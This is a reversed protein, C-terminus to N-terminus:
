VLQKLKLVSAMFVFHIIYNIFYAISVGEFGFKSTFFQTLLYFTAAFILESFVVIKIYAKAIFFYGILWSCMKIIDGSLQWFFLDQMKLFDESFLAIIIQSSFIYILASITITSPILYLYGKIFETKIATKDSIESFKPLFYISLVSTLFMLYVTSIRWMADWYGAYDIGFNNILSNRILIHALPIALAGALGMSGFKILRTVGQNDKNLKFITKFWNFRRAYFLSVFFVISQNTVLAILAGELGYFFTLGTTMLLSILSGFITIKTHVLIEKKGNLIALILGNFVYFILTLGFISFIFDYNSNNLLHSAINSSFITLILAILIILILSIKFASQWINALKRPQDHYESTYKIVGNNLFGSSASLTASIINQLQGIIAYGSPGVILALVKNVVLLSIIRTSVSVSSLSITKVFDM